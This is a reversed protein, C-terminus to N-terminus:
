LSAITFTQVLDASKPVLFKNMALQGLSGSAKPGPAAVKGGGWYVNFETSERSYITVKSGATGEGELAIMLGGHEGKITWMGNAGNETARIADAVPPIYVRVQMVGSSNAAVSTQACASPTVVCAAVASAVTMLFTRM